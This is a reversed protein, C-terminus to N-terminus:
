LHLYIGLLFLTCIFNKLVYIQIFIFCFIIFNFKCFLIVTMQYQLLKLRDACLLLYTSRLFVTCMYVQVFSEFVCGTMKEDEFKIDECKQPDRGRKLPPQTGGRPTTMTPPRPSPPPPPRLPQGTSM